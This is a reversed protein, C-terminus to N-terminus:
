TLAATAASPVANEPHDRLLGPRGRGILAFQERGRGESPAVTALLKGESSRVQVKLSGYDADRGIKDAIRQAYYLASGDDFHAVGEEDLFSDEGWCLDFFYLRMGEGGSLADGDWEAESSVPILSGRRM